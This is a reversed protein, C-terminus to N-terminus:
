LVVRDSQYQTISDLIGGELHKKLQNTFNSPNSKNPIDDSLYCSSFGASMNFILHFRNKNLYFRFVFYSGNEHISELRSKSLTENLEKVLHHVFIGDLAM